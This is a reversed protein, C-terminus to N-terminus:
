ILLLHHLWVTIDLRCKVMKWSDLIPSQPLTVAPSTTQPIVLPPVQTGLLVQLRSM